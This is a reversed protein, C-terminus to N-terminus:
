MVVCACENERDRRMRGLELGGDDVAKLLGFESGLLTEDAPVVVCTRAYFDQLPIPHLTTRDEPEDGENNKTTNHTDDEHPGEDDEEDNDPKPNRVSSFREPLSLSSTYTPRQMTTFSGHNNDDQLITISSRQSHHDDEM